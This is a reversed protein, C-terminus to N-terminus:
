ATEEADDQPRLAERYERGLRMAEVYAADDKFTGWIEKWWPQPAGATGGREQKLREMEAELVTLREEITANAM